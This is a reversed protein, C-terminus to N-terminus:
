HGTYIAKLIVNLSKCTISKHRAIQIFKQRKAVFCLRNQPQDATRCSGGHKLLNWTDSPSVLQMPLKSMMMVHVTDQEGLGLRYPLHYLVVTLPSTLHLSQFYCSETEHYNVCKVIITFTIRFLQRYRHVGAAVHVISDLLWWTKSKHRWYGLFFNRTGTEQTNSQIM